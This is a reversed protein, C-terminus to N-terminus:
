PAFLFDRILASTELSNPVGIHTGKVRRSEPHNNMSASFVPVMNDGKQGSDFNKSFSKNMGERFFVRDPTIESDSYIVLNEKGPLATELDDKFQMADKIRVLMDPSFFRFRNKFYTEEVGVVPSEQSLNKRVVLPHQADLYFRDPLLEYVSDMQRALWNIEKELSVTNGYRHLYWRWALDGLMTGFFHQFIAFDIKPHIAFYAKPAGFHPSAIYVTRRVPANFLRVAARTVLGGMSHNIIDVSRWQPHAALLANIFEALRRGSRRNSRTWDYAFIWFNQGSIYGMNELYRLLESYVMPFLPDNQSVEKEPVETLDRLSKPKFHGQEWWGLPPWIPESSGKKFLRSGLLGPVFVLPTDPPHEPPRLIVPPSSAADESQPEAPLRSM